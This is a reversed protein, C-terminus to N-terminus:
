TESVNRASMQTATFTAEVPTEDDEYKARGGKLREAPYRGTTLNEVHSKMVVNRIQSMLNIVNM